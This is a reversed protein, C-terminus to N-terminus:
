SNKSSLKTDKIITLTTAKAEVAAVPAAPVPAAPVPAAVVATPAVVPDRHVVPAQQRTPAHYANSTTAPRAMVAKKNTKAKAEKEKDKQIIEERWNTQRPEVLDYKTVPNEVTEPQQGQEICPMSLPLMSANLEYLDYVDEGLIEHDFQRLLTADQAAAYLVSCGRQGGRGLLMKRFLYAEKTKPFSYHIVLNVFPVENKRAYRAYDDTTILLRQIVNGKPTEVVVGKKFKELAEMRELKSEGGPPKLTVPTVGGFMKLLIMSKSCQSTHQATELVKIKDPSCFIIAQVNGDMQTLITDLQEIRQRHHRGHVEMFYCLQQSRLLMAKDAAAKDAAAKDAAAKDAAARAAAAAKDAAIKHQRLVEVAEDVKQSLLDSSDLLNVIEANDMELLMGTIKAAQEPYWMKTIRHYLKEGLINRM